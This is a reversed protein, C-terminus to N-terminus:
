RATAAARRLVEALQPSRAAAALQLLDDAPALGALGATVADLDTGGVRTTLAPHSAAVEALGAQRAADDGGRIEPRLALDDLRLLRGYVAPNGIKTRRGSALQSLMPASLGIVEALRSQPIAFATMVRRFVDALPEGYLRVQEDRADPSSQPPNVM